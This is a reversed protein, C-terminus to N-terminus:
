RVFISVNLSGNASIAGYMSKAAKPELVLFAVAILVLPLALVLLGKGLALLPTVVADGLRTGPDLVHKRGNVLHAALQDARDALRARVKRQLHHGGAVVQLPQHIESLRSDFGESARLPGFRRKLPRSPLLVPRCRGSSRHSALSISGFEATTM